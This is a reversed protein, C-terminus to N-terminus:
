LDQTGKNKRRRPFYICISFKFGPSRNERFKTYDNVGNRAVEVDYIKFDHFHYYQGQTKTEKPEVAWNQAKAAEM